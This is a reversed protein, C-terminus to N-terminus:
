SCIRLIKFIRRMHEYSDTTYIGLGDRTYSMCHIRTADELLGDAEIDFIIGQEMTM